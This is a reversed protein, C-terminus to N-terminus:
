TPKRCSVLCRIGFPLYSNNRLFSEIGFALGLLHRSGAHRLARLMAKRAERPEAGILRQNRKKGLWFIPYVLFGLHSRSLINFGRASLLRILASMSYRRWHRVQQDFVDYLGPMAPVEIIAVGGPKLIRYIHEIASVDDEIHELVNLIVVADSIADPLPCKALDLQVLPINPIRVSVKELSSRSYDAALLRARPFTKSLLELMAGTSCGVEMIVPEDRNVLWRRLEGIAHNRSAKGIARNADVKTAVVEDLDDSWGSRSSVYSLM